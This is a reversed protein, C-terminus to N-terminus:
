SDKQKRPWEEVTNPLKFATTTTNSYISLCLVILRTSLCTLITNSRSSSWIHIMNCQTEFFNRRWLRGNWAERLDWTRFVGVITTSVYHRLVFFGPERQCNTSTHHKRTLIPSGWSWILNGFAVTFQSPDTPKQHHKERRSCHFHWTNKRPIQYM